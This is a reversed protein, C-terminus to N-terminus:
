TTFFGILLTGMLGLFSLFLAWLVKGHSAVKSKLVPVDEILSFIKDITERQHAMDEKIATLTATTAGRFEANEEESM